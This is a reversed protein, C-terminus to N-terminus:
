LSPAIEIDPVFEHTVYMGHNVFCPLGIYEKAVENMFSSNFISNITPYTAEDMKERDLVVAKGPPYSIQRVYEKEVDEILECFENQVIEIQPTQIFNPLVAAGYERVFSVIELVTLDKSITINQLNLERLM